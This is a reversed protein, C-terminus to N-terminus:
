NTKVKADLKPAETQKESKDMKKSEIETESIAVKEKQTSIDLKINHIIDKLEDNSMKTIGFNKRMFGDMFTEDSVVYNESFKDYAKDSTVPSYQKLMLDTIKQSAVIRDHEDLGKLGQIGYFTDNFIKQTRNHLVKEKEEITTAKEFEKWMHRINGLNLGLVMGRTIASKDNDKTNSAELFGLIQKHVHDQVKQNDIRENAQQATKLRRPKLLEKERIEKKAKEMDSNAKDIVSETAYETAKQFIDSNRHQDIFASLANLDRKEAPGQFWHTAKWWGSRENITKQLARAYVIVRSLEEATVSNGDKGMSAVDARMDRLRLSRNIYNNKIFDSKDSPINAIKGQLADVVDVGSKWGGNKNPPTQKNETCYQRYNDMLKEFDKFFASHDVSAVKKAIASEMAERYLRTVTSRYVHDEASMRPDTAFASRMHYTQKLKIEYADFSFSVGYKQNFDNVQTQYKEFSSAPM